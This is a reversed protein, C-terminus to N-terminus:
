PILTLERTNKDIFKFKIKLADKPLAKEVRESWEIAVINKPNSIIEQLGLDLVDKIKNIRYCDFHYLKEYKILNKTKSKKGKGIKFSKLIVFTPSTIREKIGLGRAFGQLFTTKGGGLDGELAIVTAKKSATFNSLIKKAIKKAFERTAQSNKTVYVKKM